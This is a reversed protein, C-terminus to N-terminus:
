RRVWANNRRGALSGSALVNSFGPEMAKAVLHQANPSASCFSSQLARWKKQRSLDAKAVYPARRGGLPAFAVNAYRAVGFLPRDMIM